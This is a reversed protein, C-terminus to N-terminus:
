DENPNLGKGYATHYINFVKSGNKKYKDRNCRYQMDAYSDIDMALGNEGKQRAKRVSKGLLEQGKATDGIENLVQKVSEKIIRNLQGETLRIRQKM